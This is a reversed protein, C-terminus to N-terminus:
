NKCYSGLIKLQISKRKVLQFANKIKENQENGELEIFFYYEFNKKQLPRSFIKTLNIKQKSFIELIESLSGFKNKIQIVISTIDKRSKEGLKKKSLIIFRTINNQNNQINEALISLNFEVAANKSCIAAINKKGKINKAAESTSHSYLIEANPLYNQLWHNCQGIAQPHSIVKKIKHLKKEESILFHKIKQHSEGYIFIEENQILNDITENVIGETNNEIPVFGFDLRNNKIEKFIDSITQFKLLNDYSGFHEYASVISHSGRPGLVGINLKKEFSRCFAIIERYITDIKNEAFNYNKKQIYKELKQFINNERIPKYFQKDQKLSGIEKAFVVRLNVLDLIEKDLSDIKKRINKIRKLSSNKKQQM